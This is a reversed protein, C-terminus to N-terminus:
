INLTSFFMNGGTGGSTSLTNKTEVFKGSQKRRNDLHKELIKVKHNELNELM